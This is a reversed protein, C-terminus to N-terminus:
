WVIGNSHQRRKGIVVKKFTRHPSTHYTNTVLLLYAAKQKSVLNYLKQIKRPFAERWLKNDSLSAQSHDSWSTNSSLPPLFELHIEEVVMLNTVVQKLRTIWNMITWHLLITVNKLIEIQTMMLIGNRNTISIWKTSSFPHLLLLLIKIKTVWGQSIFCNRGNMKKLLKWLIKSLFSPDKFLLYVKVVPRFICHECSSIIIVFRRSCAAFDENTM